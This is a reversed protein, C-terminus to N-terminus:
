TGPNPSTEAWGKYLYYARHFPNKLWELPVKKGESRLADIRKQLELDKEYQAKLSPSERVKLEFLRNIKEACVRAAERPTAMGLLVKDLAEKRYTAFMNINAYPTFSPAVGYHRAEDAEVAAAGWENKFHKPRLYEESNTYEPCPPLADATAVIDENYEKSTLFALFLPALDDKHPSGEYIVAPRAQLLSNRFEECPPESVTYNAQKEFGRIRIMAWRGTNLMAIQGNNLLSNLGTVNAMGQYDVGGSLTAEDAASPFLHDENVWKALLALVRAFREDDLTCRTCTENMSSLSLSREMNMMLCDGLWDILGNAFFVTRRKGPPNSRRVFEKGIREFTAFDWFRPPPEMGVRRFADANVWFLNVSGNCPFGYQRGDASLIPEVGAYTKSMDFGLRKASDTVDHLYGSPYAYPVGMDMIDGAMGSVAQIGIKRSNVVDLRLDFLPKGEATVHGNRVMWENFLQVQRTRAPNADTMWYLVPVKSQIEPETRWTAFSAGLLILFIICFMLKM